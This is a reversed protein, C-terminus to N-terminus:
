PSDTPPTGFGGLTETVERHMADTKKSIQKIEARNADTAEVVQRVQQGARMSALGALLANVAIILATAAVVLMRIQCLIPEPGPAPAPGPPSLNGPTYDPEPPTFPGIHDGPM